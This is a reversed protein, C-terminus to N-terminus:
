RRRKKRKKKKEMVKPTVKKKPAEGENEEIDPRSFGINESLAKVLALKDEWGVCSSRLLDVGGLEVETVEGDETVFEVVQKKFVKKSEVNLLRFVIRAIEHMRLEDFIQQVGETGYTEGLWAEDDMTIPNMVFEKDEFTTLKFRAEKPRMSALDM